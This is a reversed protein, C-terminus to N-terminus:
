QDGGPHSDAQRDYTGTGPPADFREFTGRMRAVDPMRGTFLRFAHAAQFLAMAGGDLTRCGRRRATELLETELPFYVIDAVWLGPRLADAAVPLGPHGVMGIPTTNILGDAAALAAKADDAAQARDGGFHGNLLAALRTARGPETDVILLREVGLTLAAYAVATGAGGAGLQVVRRRPADGMGSRFAEAFGSWDTNDGIRRGDRFLVTNAAGLITAEPSLADLLPVVAQKCPHTINLGGFGMMAAADLLAPLDGVGRGLRDLDIIQYLLHIGHHTAEVEHMKPTRSKQIGSGILGLLLHRSASGDPDNGIERPNTQQDM